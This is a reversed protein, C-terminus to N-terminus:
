SFFIGLGPVVILGALILAVGRIVGTRTRNRVLEVIGFIVLLVALLGLVVNM